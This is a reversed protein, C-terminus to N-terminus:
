DEMEFFVKDYHSMARNRHNRRDPMKPTITNKNKYAIQILLRKMYAIDKEMRLCINKLEQVDLKLLYIDDDMTIKLFTGYKFRLIAFHGHFCGFIHLNFV